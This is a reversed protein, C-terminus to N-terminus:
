GSHPQFRLRMEQQMGALDEQTLARRCNSIVQAEELAMHPRFINDLQEALNTLRALREEAAPGETTPVNRLCAALQGFIAQQDRHQSELIPILDRLSDADGSASERLRPFLSQEEDEIHLTSLLQLLALEYDLAAAAEARLVPETLCLGVVADKVTVLGDEIRQHCHQLHELPDQVRIGFEAVSVLSSFTGTSAVAMPRDEEKEVM